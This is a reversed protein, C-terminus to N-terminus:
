SAEQQDTWGQAIPGDWGGPVLASTPTATITTATARQMADNHGNEACQYRLNRETEWVPSMWDAQTIQGEGEGWDIGALYTALAVCEAQEQPNVVAVTQQTM